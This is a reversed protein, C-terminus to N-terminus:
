KYGILMYREYNPKSSMEIQKIGKMLMQSLPYRNTFVNINPNPQKILWPYDSITINSSQICILTSLPIQNWWEATDFHEASCNIICDPPNSWDLENCNKTFNQVKINKFATWANCIKDAIPKCEQDIDYGIIQQYYDPRRCLLIFAITNYWSGLVWVTSNPKIYRELHEALWLKSTIQGHSFSDYNM